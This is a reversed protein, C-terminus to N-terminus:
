EETPKNSQSPNVASFSSDSVNQRLMEAMGGLAGLIGNSEMPLFFTKQQNSEAFKALAEVYKQAVFYNTAHINGESIARSLTATARAEAIALRERAEADLFAAEKRGEAELVQSQKEGEARLIESQRQGEAELIQARKIQEAKKQRAMAAVLDAPPTIDKIEVRTVKVGWPNTALDITQLLRQNIEDRQALLDDLAMSGMVTRLNTMALNMISYELDDVAYAAKAANVVQFFVVGDVSVMANDKTIVEQRPVDLMREKMNVRHGVSQWFPILLNFGPELTKQYRGLRLLTYEMGQPVIQIAKKAIWFVVVILVISFVMSGDFIKEPNM